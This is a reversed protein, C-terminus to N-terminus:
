TLVFGYFLLIVLPIDNSGPGSVHTYQFVSAFSIIAVQACVTMDTAAQSLEASGTRALLTYFSPTVPDGRRQKHLM